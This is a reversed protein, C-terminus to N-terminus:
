AHTTDGVANSETVQTLKTNLFDQSQANITHTPGDHTKADQAGRAGATEASIKM